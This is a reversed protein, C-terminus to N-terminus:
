PAVTLHYTIDLTFGFDPLTGHFHITHKGPPLPHLAVYYGDDVVPKYTGPLADSCGVAQLLNDSPLTVAFVPSTFRNRSLDVPTGDVELALNTATNIIAKIQDRLESVSLENDEICLYNDNEFNLIPFFLTTGPSITCARKASHSENFVGGLFFVKKPQDVDCLDGAGLTDVLLPNDAAPISFAWQWWAAAWEGYTKGAIKANPPYAIAHEDRATVPAGTFPALLLLVVVLSALTRTYRRPTTITQM